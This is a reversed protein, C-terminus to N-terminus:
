TMNQVINQECVVVCVCAESFYRIKSSQECQIVSTGLTSSKSTEGINQPDLVVIFHTIDDFGVGSFISHCVLLSPTSKWLM